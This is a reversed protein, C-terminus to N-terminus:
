RKAIDRPIKKFAINYRRLDDESLANIDAYIIYGRQRRAFPQWFTM